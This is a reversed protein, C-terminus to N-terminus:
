CKISSEKKLLTKGRCCRVSIRCGTQEAQGLQGSGIAWAVQSFHYYGGHVFIRGFTCCGCFTLYVSFVHYTFNGDLAFKTDYWIIDCFLINELVKKDSCNTRGHQQLSVGSGTEGSNLIIFM